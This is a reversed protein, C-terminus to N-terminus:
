FLQSLFTRAPVVVPKQHRFCDADVYPEEFVVQFAHLAGTQQQMFALEPALHTEGNKVEVLFWPQQDRTM